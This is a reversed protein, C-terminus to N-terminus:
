RRAPLRVDLLLHLVPDDPLEVDLLEDGGLDVVGDRRGRQHGRAADAREQGGQLLCSARMRRNTSSASRASFESQRFMGEMGFTRSEDPVIPVIRKGLNKDRLLANLVRVFAM